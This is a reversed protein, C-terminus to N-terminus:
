EEQAYEQEKSSEARGRKMEQYKAVKEKINDPTIGFRTLDMGLSLEMEQLKAKIENLSKKGFNRFELMKREPISVLEAITDINAGSLCNTSRVSLEIEDIRLSLKEMLEDDEDTADGSGEDFSIPL